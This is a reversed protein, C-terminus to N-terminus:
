QEKASRFLIQKRYGTSKCIKADMLHYVPSLRIDKGKIQFGAEGIKVVEANEPVDVDVTGEYGLLLPGYFLRVYGSKTRPVNAVKEIGSKM